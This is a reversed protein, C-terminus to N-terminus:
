RLAAEPLGLSFSDQRIAWEQGHELTLIDLDEAEIEGRRVLDLAKSFLVMSHFNSTPRTIRALRDAEHIAYPLGESDAGLSLVSMLDDIKSLCFRPIEVRYPVLGTKVYCSHVQVGDPPYGLDEGLRTYAATVRNSVLFPETYEGRKLLPNLFVADRLHPVKLMTGYHNMQTRKVFGALVVEREECSAILKLANVCATFYDAQYGGSDQPRPQLRPNLVFAGDLVLFNPSWLDVARKAVEYELSMHLLSERRKPDPEAPWMDPAGSMCVPEERIVCDEALVAVAGYLPLYAFKYSNGNRGADVGVVRRASGLSAEANVGRVNVKIRLRSLAERREHAYERLGSLLAETGRDVLAAYLESYPSPEAAQSAFAMTEEFPTGEGPLSGTPLFSALARAM